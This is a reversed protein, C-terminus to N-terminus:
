SAATRRLGEALPTYRFDPFASHCASIDFSRYGNHPMPGARPSSKIAVRRPSLAVIMEAIQRFSHVEGTAVNLAGRSRRVLVQLALNAVDDISVHDRREEGEGFLVIDDGAAALRRFRNPGYGNHPDAIGYILTPRMMVIPVQITSRLAVERALHMAGHLSSPSTCSAETLPAAEDGYIADSSINLVHTIPAAALATALTDVMRMNDILMATTKCPAIAAATVVADGPELLARLQDAAGRALLDVQDRGLALCPIRTSALLSVIASGVFGGAGIVVVRSPPQPPSQLHELVFAEEGV